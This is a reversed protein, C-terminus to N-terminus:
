GAPGLAGGVAGARAPLVTTTNHNALRGGTQM